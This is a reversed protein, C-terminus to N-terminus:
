IECDSSTIKPAITKAVMSSPPARSSPRATGIPRLQRMAMTRTATIAKRIQSEHNAPECIECCAACNGASTLFWIPIKMSQSCVCPKAMLWDSTLRKAPVSTLPTPVTVLAIPPMRPPSVVSTSIMVM